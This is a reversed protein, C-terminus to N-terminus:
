AEFQRRCRRCRIRAPLAHDGPEFVVGGGALQALPLGKVPLTAEHGCRPCSYPILRGTDRPVAGFDLVDWTATPMLPLM